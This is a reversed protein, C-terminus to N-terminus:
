RKFYSCLARDSVGATGLSPLSLHDAVKSVAYQRVGCLGLCVVRAPRPFQLQSVLIVVATSALLRYTTCGMMRMRTIAVFVWHDPHYRPFLVAAIRLEAAPSELLELPVLRAPAWWGLSVVTQCLNIFGGLSEEFGQHVPLSTDCIRIESCLLALCLGVIFVM